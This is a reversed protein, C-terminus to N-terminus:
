PRRPGRGEREMERIEQETMRRFPGTDIKVICFLQRQGITNFLRTTRDQSIFANVCMSTGNAAGAPVRFEFQLVQSQGARLRLSRAPEPQFVSLGGSNPQTPPILFSQATVVSWSSANLTTAMGNTVRVSYRCIGGAAPINECGKTNSFRM